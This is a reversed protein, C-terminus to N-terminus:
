RPWRTPDIMDIDGLGFQAFDATPLPAASAVVEALQEASEVGVVVRDVESLGTVFGLAAAVPTLDREACFARWAVLHDRIPDFYTPATSPDMLLLGQLFASRAHIEIGRSKLEALAGSKVLRQDFVNVPMQVLDAEGVVDLAAFLEEADYASVGIHEVAGNAKFRKLMEALKPGYEGLLDSARHILLGYLPMAGLRALSEGVEAAVGRYGNEDAPATKAVIEFRAAANLEGLVAEADGYAWATDLVRIGAAAAADLIRSVEDASVRGGANSVGYDLGFQATGLALKM